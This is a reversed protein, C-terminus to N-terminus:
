VMRDYINSRLFGDFQDFSSRDVVESHADIYFELRSLGEYFNYRIPNSTFTVGDITAKAYGLCNTIYTSLHSTSTKFVCKGFKDTVADGFKAWDGDWNLWLEVPINKKYSLNHRKKIEVKSLLFDNQYAYPYPSKNTLIVSFGRPPPPTRVSLLEFAGIDYGGALPRINGDYDDSPAYVGEFEATGGNKCPSNYQLHLDPIDTNIFKPDIDIKDHLGQSIGNYNTDCDFFLGYDFKGSPCNQVYVGTGCGYFINNFNIVGGGWHDSIYIGFESSGFISNNICHCGTSSGEMANSFIGRTCNIIQCNQVTSFTSYYESHVRIGVMFNNFLCGSVNARTNWGEIYFGNGGYGGYFECNQLNVDLASVYNPVIIGGNVFSIGSINLLTSTTIVLHSSPQINVTPKNTNESWSRITLETISSDNITISHATDDITGNDVVEIIDGTALTESSLLNYFNTYSGSYPPNGGTGADVYYVNPGSSLTLLYGGPYTGIYLDGEFEEMCEPTEGPYNDCIFDWGDKTSNFVLLGTGAPASGCGYLKGNFVKAVAMRGLCVFDWDNLSDNWKYTSNDVYYFGYIDGDFSVLPTPIFTGPGALQYLLTWSAGDLRYFSTDGYAYLKSDHEFFFGEYASLSPFLNYVTWLSGDNWLLPVAWNAFNTGWLQSNFEYIHGLVYGNGPYTSIYVTEWATGALNVRALVRNPDGWNYAAGYIRGDSHLALDNIHTGISPCVEEWGDKALNLALLSTGGGTLSSGASYLRGGSVVLASILNKGGFTDCVKILEPM